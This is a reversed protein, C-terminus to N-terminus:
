PRPSPIARHPKVFYVGDEPMGSNRAAILSFSLGVVIEIVLRRLDDDGAARLM